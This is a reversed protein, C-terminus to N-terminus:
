KSLAAAVESGPKGPVVKLRRHEISPNRRRVRAVRAASVDAAVLGVQEGLEGVIVGMPDVILSGGTGIPPAQGPGIVFATNEIARARVLTRWHDEKRPGPTWSAPVLIAEAGADVMARTLEPFRLDYCTMLGFRIEGFDFVLRQEVDGPRIWASEDGGFSDMMHIKRYVLLDAGDPGTVFVTNYSLASEPIREAMGVVLAVQTTRALERIATAFPGDLDEAADRFADDRVAQKFMAHEPFAVLEAGFAKAERVMEGMARLNEAKDATSRIQGAAVRVDDGDGVSTRKSWIYLM